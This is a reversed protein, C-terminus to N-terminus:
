VKTAWIYTNLLRIDHLLNWQVYSQEVQCDSKRFWITVNTMLGSVIGQCWFCGVSFHFTAKSSDTIYWWGNRIKSMYITKSHHGLRDVFRCVLFWYSVFIWTSSLCLFNKHSQPLESFFFLLFCMKEKTPERLISEKAFM